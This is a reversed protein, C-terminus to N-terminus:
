WQRRNITTKDGSLVPLLPLLPLPHSSYLSFFTETVDALHQSALFDEQGKLQGLLAEKFIQERGGKGSRVDTVQFVSAGFREEGGNGEEEGESRSFKFSM